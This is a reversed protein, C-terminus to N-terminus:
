YSIKKLTNLYQNYEEIIHLSSNRHLDMCYFSGYSWLFSHTRFPRVQYTQYEPKIVPLRVDAHTLKRSNYYIKFLLDHNM